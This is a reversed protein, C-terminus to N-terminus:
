QGHRPQRAAMELRNPRHCRPTDRRRRQRPFLVSLNGRHVVRHHQGHLRHQVVINISRNIRPKLLISLVVMLAPIVIYILTITLFVQNIEFETIALKGDLAAELVEARFVRLHRRLCVRVSDRDVARLARTERRNSYRPVAGVGEGELGREASFCSATECKLGGV